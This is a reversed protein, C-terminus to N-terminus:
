FLGKAYKLTNISLYLLQIEKSDIASCAGGTQVSAVERTSFQFCLRDAPIFSCCIALNEM